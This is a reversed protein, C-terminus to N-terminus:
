EKNISQNTKTDPANKENENMKVEKEKELAENLLMQLMEMQQKQKDLKRAARMAAKSEEERKQLAEEFRPDKPDIEYGLYERIEQILKENKLNEDKINQHMKHYSAWFEEKMKPLKKLNENIEKERQARKEKEIRKREMLAQQMTEVSQEFKEQYQKM